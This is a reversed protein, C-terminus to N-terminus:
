KKVLFVNSWNSQFIVRNSSVVAKVRAYLPEGAPAYSVPLEFNYTGPEWVEREFTYIPPFSSYKSFQIVYRTLIGALAGYPNEHTFTIRIPRYYHDPLYNINVEEIVPPQVIGDKIWFSNVDGTTTNVGDTSDVRISYIVGNTFQYNLSASKTTVTNVLVFNSSEKVYVQYTVTDGPDVDEGETWYAWVGSIPDPVSTIFGIPAILKVKEPARNAVNISFETGVSTGGGDIAYVSYVVWGKVPRPDEFVVNESRTVFARGIFEEISSTQIREGSVTVAQRYIEYYYADASSSFVMRYKKGDETWRHELLQPAEPIAFLVEFTKAKLFATVNGFIDKIYINLAYKGKGPISVQYTNSTAFTRYDQVLSSIEDYTSTSANWAALAWRVQYNQIQSASIGQSSLSTMVFKVTQNKKLDSLSIDQDGINRPQLTYAPISHKIEVSKNNTAKSSYANGDKDEATVSLVFTGTNFTNPSAFVYTTTASASTFQFNKSTDTTHTFKWTVKSIVPDKAFLNGIGGMKSSSLKVSFNATSGVTISAPSDITVTISSAPKICGTFLFIVCSTMVFLLFFKKVGM